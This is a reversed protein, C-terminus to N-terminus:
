DTGTIIEDTILKTLNEVIVNEKVEFIRNIDEEVIGFEVVFENADFPIKMMIVMLGVFKMRLINM